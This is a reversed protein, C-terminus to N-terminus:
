EPAIALFAGEGSREIRRVTTIASRDLPGYVHPFCQEPDDYRVPSSLRSLDVTLVVWDGPIARYLANGVDLVRAEGHTLHVFGDHDFAAPLYPEAPDLGVYCALPTLHFAFRSDPEVAGRVLTCGAFPFAGVLWNNRREGCSGTECGCAAFRGHHFPLTPIHREPTLRPTRQWGVKRRERM